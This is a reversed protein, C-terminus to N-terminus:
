IYIKYERKRHKQEQKEAIKKLHRQTVEPLVMEESISEDLQMLTTFLTDQLSEINMLSKLQVDNRSLLKKLHDFASDSTSRYENWSDDSLRQKIILARFEESEMRTYHSYLSSIAKEIEMAQAVMEASRQMRKIQLFTMSAAFLLIIVAVVM